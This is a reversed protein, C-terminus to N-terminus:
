FGCLMQKRVNASISECSQSSRLYLLISCLLQSLLKGPSQKIARRQGFDHNEDASHRRLNLGRQKTLKQLKLQIALNRVILIDLGGNQLCQMCLQKFVAVLLQSRMHSLRGCSRQGRCQLM